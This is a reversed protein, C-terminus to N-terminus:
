SELTRTKVGAAGLAEVAAASAGLFREITNPETAIDGLVINYRHATEHHPLQTMADLWRSLKPFEGFNFLGAWHLQAVEEYCAIDAITPQEACLYTTGRFYGREILAFIERAAAQGRELKDPQTARAVLEGPEPRTKLFDLFAVVVHPAMLQMMLQRTRNHHFHLYQDVVARIEADRPYLGEWGHKRCLYALIAPMEYLAFDGDQITPVQGTPNLAALPGGPGFQDLRVDCLEFPLEQMLCAWWVARSPQSAGCGYLTLM